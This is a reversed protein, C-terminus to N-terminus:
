SNFTNICISDQPVALMLGTPWWLWAIQLCGRAVTASVRAGPLPVHEKLLSALSSSCPLPRACLHCAYLTEQSCSWVGSFTHWVQLRGSLSFSCSLLSGECFAQSSPPHRPSLPVEIWQRHLARPTTAQWSGDKRIGCDWPVWFHM